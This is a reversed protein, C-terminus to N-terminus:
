DAKIGAGRVVGGWRDSEQKMFTAMEAPTSGVPEFSMTHLQKAVEPRKLAEAIAASVQTALTSPTAPPAVVGAWFTSVLGPVVESMVPLDPLFASRKEGAAALARVKGAQILRLANGLDTFFVDVQGGVLALIAGQNDKYPVHVMDVGARSKFLEAALHATTGSGQSAYNLKGPNSKAFAILERVNRAAVGPQVLLINPSTVLVSVPAFTDPDFSLKQYLSKNVVLPGPATILLTYGDPPAKAVAEAGINGGAGPRNDAIVPQGWRDRLKDGLMRAMTDLGGGPPTPVVIRVPKSPYDQAWAVAGPLFTSLVLLSCVIKKMLM